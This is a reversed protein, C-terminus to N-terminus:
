RFVLVILYVAIGGVFVIAVSAIIWEALWYHPKGHQGTV